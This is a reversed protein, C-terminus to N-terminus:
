EHAAVEEPRPAVRVLRLPAGQQDKFREIVVSGPRRWRSWEAEAVVCYLPVSVSPLLDPHRLRRAPRGCYFILGEDKVGCLYVPRDPPLLAALRQGKEDPRRDRSRQPVIVHVFALKAALWLLLLGALVGRPTGVPLPWSLRKDLWAVWVLVALGALGPLLPLSHRLAHGPALSWLLLNPWTWCHCLQLLRKGNDDCLAAFSPRLTFLAAASWPLSAALLRLPFCLAAPLSYPGPKEGPWLHTLAERSMTMRWTDWGVQAVVAAIWALCIGAGLAVGLLHGRGLLLRLQGRWWLMPVATLYVFAPATWKTLTGGAVCLLAACWWGEKQLLRSPVPAHAPSVTERPVKRAFRCAGLTGATREESAKLARLLCLLAAGVWAVQVMDIEASPVRDLWLLSASLVLAAVVGARRGLERAFTQAFLLVLITAALVSPLRATWASVEGFPWSVLAIAAYMGPPKTLLPEGYVTPVVWNGSRLMEAAVLARLGETRYLPGARLGYGLLLGCSLAV